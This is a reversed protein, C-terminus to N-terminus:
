ADQLAKKLRQVSKKKKKDNGRIFFGKTHKHLSTHEHVQM